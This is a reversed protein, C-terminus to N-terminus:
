WRVLCPWRSQPGSNITCLGPCSDPTSICCALLFFLVRLGREPGQPKLRTSINTAKATVAINSVAVMTAISAVYGQGIPMINPYSWERIPPNILLLNLGGDRPKFDKISEETTIRPWNTNLIGGGLDFRQYFFDPPGSPSVKLTKGSTSSSNIM